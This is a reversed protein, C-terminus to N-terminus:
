RGLAVRGAHDIAQVLARPAAALSEIGVVLMTVIAIAALWPLMLLTAFLVVPAGAAVRLAAPAAPRARVIPAMYM